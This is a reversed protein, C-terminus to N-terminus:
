IKRCTYKSIEMSAYKQIKMDYNYIKLLNMCKHKKM